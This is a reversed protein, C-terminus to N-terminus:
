HVLEVSFEEAIGLANHNQQMSSSKDIAAIYFKNKYLIFQRM